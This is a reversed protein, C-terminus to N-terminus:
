IFGTTPGHRVHESCSAALVECLVQAEDKGAATDSDEKEGLRSGEGLDEGRQM